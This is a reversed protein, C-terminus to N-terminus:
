WSLSDPTVTNLQQQYKMWARWLANELRTSNKSARKERLVYRRTVWIDEQRWIHSLYDVNIAPEEELADDDCFLTLTSKM